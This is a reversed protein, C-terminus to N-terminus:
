EGRRGLEKDLLIMSASDEKVKALMALVEIANKEEEVQEIVFWHMFIETSSDGVDKATKYINDISATVKKEHVLTKEFADKASKFSNEPKEIAGLAVHLGKDAMYEFIKMGHNMEEKAQVKMWKACGSLNEADFYAAMGLYLYSSAIEKTIQENLIKELKKDMFGGM